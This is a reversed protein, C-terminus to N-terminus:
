ADDGRCFRPFRRAALRATLIQGSLERRLAGLARGYARFYLTGATLEDLTDGNTGATSAAGPVSGTGADRTYRRCRADARVSFVVALADGM